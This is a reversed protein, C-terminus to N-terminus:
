FSMFTVSGLAHLFSVCTMGSSIFGVAMEVARKLEEAKQATDLEAELAREIETPLDQQSSGM